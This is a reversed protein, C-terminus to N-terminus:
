PLPCSGAADFMAVVAEAPHSLITEGNKLYSYTTVAHGAAGAGPPPDYTPLIYTAYPEVRWAFGKATQVTLTVPAIFEAVKAGGGELSAQM